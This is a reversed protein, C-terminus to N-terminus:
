DKLKEKLKSYNDLFYELVPLQLPFISNASKFVIERLEDISVWRPEEAESSDLRVEGAAQCLFVFGAWPLGNNTQLAQQCIFPRFVFAQDNPRPEKVTGQFDDIIKVIDLNCEEKVERRLAAYVNEYGDINGAPIEILGSYNPSRDPKFRTQIFIEIQDDRVRFLIASVVAVTKQTNDM